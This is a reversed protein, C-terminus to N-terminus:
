NLYHVHSDRSELELLNTAEKLNSVEGAELCGIIYNLSKTNM